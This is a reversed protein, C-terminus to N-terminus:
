TYMKISISNHLIRNNRFYKIFKFKNAIQLLFYSNASVMPNVIQLRYVFYLFNTKHQLKQNMPFM